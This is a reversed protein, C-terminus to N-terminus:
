QRDSLAWNLQVGVFARVEGNWCLVDGDLVHPQVVPINGRLRLESGFFDLDTNGSSFTHSSQADPGRLTNAERLKVSITQLSSSAASEGDRVHVSCFIGCM